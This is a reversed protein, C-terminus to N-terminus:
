RGAADIAKMMRRLQWDLLGPLLRGLWVPLWYIEPAVLTRARREMARAILKACREPSITFHSRMPALAAPSEGALVNSQFNTRIHGPYVCLVSIGRPALEIRLGASLADLAYKTACYLTMWPLIVQSGISAVNVVLAGAELHPAVLRCLDLPAFFNVEFMRRVAADPVALSPGYVGVGANNILIDLRGVENLARAVASDREAPVSLDAPIIVDGDGAVLRLKEASRAVLALRAGRRRLEHALAAGIGDSAGTLLVAKGNLNM